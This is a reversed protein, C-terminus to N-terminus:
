PKTEGAPKIDDVYINGSRGIRYTVQVRQGKRLLLFRTGSYSAQDGNLVIGVQDPSRHGAQDVFGYTFSTVVGSGHRTIAERMDAAERSPAIYYVCVVIGVLFLAFLSVPLWAKLAYQWQECRAPTYVSRAAM